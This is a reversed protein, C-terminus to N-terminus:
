SGFNLDQTIVSGASRTKFNVCEHKITFDAKSSSLFSASVPHPSGHVHRGPTCGEDGPHVDGEDGPACLGHGRTWRWQTGNVQVIWRWDGVRTREGLPRDCRLLSPSDFYPYPFVSSLPSDYFTSLIEEFIVVLFMTHTIEAVDVSFFQLIKRYWKQVSKPLDKKGTEPSIFM